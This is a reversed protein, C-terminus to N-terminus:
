ESFDGLVKLARPGVGGAGERAVDEGEWGWVPKRATGGVPQAVERRGERRRRKANAKGEAQFAGGRSIQM